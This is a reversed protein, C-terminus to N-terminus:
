APNALSEKWAMNLDYFDVINGSKDSQVVCGGPHTMFCAVDSAINPDAASAARLKSSLIAGVQKHFLARAGVVKADDFTLAVVRNRIGGYPFGFAVDQVIETDLLDGESKIKFARSIVPSTASEGLKERISDYLRMSLRFRSAPAMPSTEQFFISCFYPMFGLLEQKKFPFKFFYDRALHSSLERTVNIKRNLVSTVCTDYLTSAQPDIFTRENADREQLAKMQLQPLKGFFREAYGVLEKYTDIFSKGRLSPPNPPPPIVVNLAELLGFPSIRFATKGNDSIAIGSRSHLLPILNGMMQNCPSKTAARFFNTDLLFFDM